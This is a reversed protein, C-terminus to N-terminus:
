ESSKEHVITGLGKIKTLDMKLDCVGSGINARKGCIISASVGNTTEKQGYFGAKLLIDISEEFTSRSLPGSDETRMTYRSISSISGTYTIKDVLLDIHCQNIGAM